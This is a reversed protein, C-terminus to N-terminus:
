EPKKIPLVVEGAYVTAELWESEEPWELLDRNIAGFKLWGVSVEFYGSTTLYDFEFPREWFMFWKV